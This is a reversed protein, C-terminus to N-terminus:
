DRNQHVSASCSPSSAERRPALATFANIVPESSSQISKCSTSTQSRTSSGCRHSKQRRPILSKTGDTSLEPEIRVSPKTSSAGGEPFPPNIHERRTLRQAFRRLWETDPIAPDVDVQTSSTLSIWAKKDIRWGPETILLITHSVKWAAASATASGWLTLTAEATDDFVGLDVKETPVGKKTTVTHLSLLSSECIMTTCPGLPAPRLPMCKKRPGISKVCILIKGDTIEYGGEIFHKLM